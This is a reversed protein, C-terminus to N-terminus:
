QRFTLSVAKACLMSTTLSNAAAPAPTHAPDLATMEVKTAQHTWAVVCLVVPAVCRNREVPIFRLMDLHGARAVAAAAAAAAAAEWCVMHHWL